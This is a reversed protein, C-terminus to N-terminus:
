MKTVISVQKNFAKQKVKKSVGRGNRRRKKKGWCREHKSKEQLRTFQNDNTDKGRKREKNKKKKAQTPEGAEKTAVSAKQSPFILPSSTLYIELWHNPGNNSGHVLHLCIFVAFDRKCCASDIVISETLPGRQICCEPIHAIQNRRKRGAKRGGNAIRWKWGYAFRLLRNEELKRKRDRILSSFKMSM